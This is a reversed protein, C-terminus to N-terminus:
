SKKTNQRKKPKQIIKTHGKEEKRDKKPLNTNQKKKPKTNQKQINIGRSAELQAAWKEVQSVAAGRIRKMRGKRKHKERKQTKEM